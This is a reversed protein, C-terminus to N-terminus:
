LGKKIKNSASNSIDPNFVNKLWKQLWLKTAQRKVVSIFSDNKLSLQVSHGSLSLSIITICKPLARDVRTEQSQPTYFVSRVFALLSIFYAWHESDVKFNFRKCVVQSSHEESVKNCINIGETVQMIIITGVVNNRYCRKNQVM